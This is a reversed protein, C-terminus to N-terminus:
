NKKHHKTQTLRRSLWFRRPNTPHNSTLHHKKQLVPPQIQKRDPAIM